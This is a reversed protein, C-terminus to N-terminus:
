MAGLLHLLTDAISVLGIAEMAMAFVLTAMDTRHFCLRTSYLVSLIWTVVFECVIAIIHHRLFISVLMLIPILAFLEFRPLSNVQKITSRLKWMVTNTNEVKDSLQIMKSTDTQSLTRLAAETEGVNMSLYWKNDRNVVGYVCITKDEDVLLYPRYLYNWSKDNRLIETENSFRIGDLSHCYFISQSGKMERIFVLHFVGGGLSVSGHWLANDSIGAIECKQLNHWKLGDESESYRLIGKTKGYGIEWLKYKGEHWITSPSLCDTHTMVEFNSWAVGDTTYKRFLCLTKGDGGLNKHLRGLYWVEIRDLDDRYLIHPDKLEACGVEENNAIPNLFGYPITWYCLDNSCAISPNEEEGNGFPYPSYAMWYRFGNWPEEFSIMSPHTPQNKGALYTEINLRDGSVFQM